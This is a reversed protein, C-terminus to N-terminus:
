SYVAALTNRYGEKIAYFDQIQLNLGQSFKDIKKTENYKCAIELEKALSSALSTEKAAIQLCLRHKPQESRYNLM